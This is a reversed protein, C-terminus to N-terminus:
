PQDNREQVVDVLCSNDGGPAVTVWVDIRALTFGSGVFYTVHDGAASSTSAATTAGGSLSAATPNAGGDDTLVGGSQAAPMRYRTSASTAPDACTTEVTGFGGLFVTATAGGVAFGSRIDRRGAGQVYSSSPM